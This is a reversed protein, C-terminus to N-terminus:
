PINFVSCYNFRAFGLNYKSRLLIATKKIESNFDLILVDNLLADIKSREGASLKPFSLLEMETIFSIYIDSGKILSPIDKDGRLLYLIINTDLLYATGSVDGNRKFNWHTEIM